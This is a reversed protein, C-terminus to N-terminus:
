FVTKKGLKGLFLRSIIGKSEEKMIDSYLQDTEEVSLREYGEFFGTGLEMPETRETPFNLTYVKKGISSGYEMDKWVIYPYKGFLSMGVVVDSGQLMEGLKEKNRGKFDYPNIVNGVELHKKLIRIAIDETDTHYTLYPHSFYATDMKFCEDM